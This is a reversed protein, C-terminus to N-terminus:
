YTCETIESSAAFGNNNDRVALYIGRISSDTGAAQIMRVLQHLTPIFDEARGAIELIPNEMQRENFSKALDSCARFEQSRNSERQETFRRINRYILIFILGFFVTLALFASFFIKFFSKM